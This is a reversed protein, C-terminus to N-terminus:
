TAAVEPTFCFGFCNAGRGEKVGFDSVRSSALGLSQSAENLGLRDRGLHGLQGGNPV